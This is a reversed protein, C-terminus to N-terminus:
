RPGRDPPGQWRPGPSSEPARSAKLEPVRRRQRRDLCRHHLRLAGHAELQGNGDQEGRQQDGADRVPALAPRALEAPRREHGVARDLHEGDQHDDEHERMQHAQERALGELTTRTSRWCILTATVICGAEGNIATELFKDDDLDRCGHVVGAITVWEGVTALDSLFRQRLTHDVYRDFKPRMLRSALEAFTEDSFVLMGDARITNLVEATRGSPQLLASILVNTDVVSREAKM